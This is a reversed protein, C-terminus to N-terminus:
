GGDALADSARAKAAVTWANRFGATSRRLMEEPPLKWLSDPYEIESFIELDYWGDYGGTELANFLGPLDIVGEGPLARDAWGRTNDSRWDAVHVCGIEAAHARTLSVIGPTDWLHYVDYCLNVNSAGIEELISLAEPLTTALTVDLGLDNRVPELSVRMGLGDAVRAIERFGEVAARRDLDSATGLRKGTTMIADVAGFPAMRSLSQCILEVRTDLDQPGPFAPEAPLPSNCAGICTPANLNSARFAELIAADEGERLKTECISIGTAGASAYLELDEEFSSDPTTLQCISYKATGM